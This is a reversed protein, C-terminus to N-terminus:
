CGLSYEAQGWLLRRSRPEGDKRQLPPALFRDVFWMAVPISLLIYPGLFVTPFLYQGVISVAFISPTVVQRSSIHRIQKVSTEPKILRHSVAYNWTLGLMVGALILNGAYIAWYFSYLGSVLSAASIAATSFPLLGIFLLFVLNYGLLGRDYGEIHDFDRHHTLWYNGSVLFTLVYAFLRPGIWAFFGHITGRAYSLTEPARLDLVLLTLVTAFLCDSLALLRSPEKRSAVSGMSRKKGKM